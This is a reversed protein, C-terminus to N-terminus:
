KVDIMKLVADLPFRTLNTYHRLDHGFSEHCTKRFSESFDKLLVHRSKLYMGHYERVQEIKLLIWSFCHM